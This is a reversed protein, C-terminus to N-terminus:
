VSIVLLSEVGSRFWLSFHPFSCLPWRILKQIIYFDISFIWFVTFFKQFNLTSFILLHHLVLTEVNENLIIRMQTWWWLMEHKLDISFSTKTACWHSRIHNFWIFNTYRPTNWISNSNFVLSKHTMSQLVLFLNCLSKLTMANSRRLADIQFPFFAIFPLFILVKEGLFSNFLNTSFYCM